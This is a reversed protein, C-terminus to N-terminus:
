PEYAGTLFTKGAVHMSPGHWNRCSRLSGARLLWGERSTPDVLAFRESGV